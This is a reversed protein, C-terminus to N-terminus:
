DKAAKYVGLISLGAIVITSINDKLVELIADRFVSNLILEIIFLVTLAVLVVIVIFLLSFKFARRILFDDQLEKLKIEKVQEDETVVKPKSKSFM